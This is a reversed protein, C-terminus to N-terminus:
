SPKPVHGGIVRNIAISSSPSVIKALARNFPGINKSETLFDRARALNAGRRIELELVKAEIMKDVAESGTPAPKCSEPDRYELLEAPQPEGEPHLIKALKEYAQEYHKRYAAGKSLLLKETDTDMKARKIATEIALNESFIASEFEETTKIQLNKNTVWQDFKKLLGRSELNSAILSIMTIVNVGPISMLVSLGLVRAARQGSVKAVMRKFQPRTIEQRQLRENLEWIVMGVSLASLAPVYDWIVDNQDAGVLTDVLRSTDATLEANSIGSSDIGIRDAIESTVLIEGNPHKELWERVYPESDTAKMQASWNHGSVEDVFKIDFGPHNTAAFQAAYVADGDGNELEVFLMEHLVGKTNSVVGRLQSEDMKALWQGLEEPSQGASPHARRLAALVALDAVTLEASDQLSIKATVALIAADDLNFRITKAEVKNAETM